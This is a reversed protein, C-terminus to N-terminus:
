ILNTVGVAVKLTSIMKDSQNTVVSQSEWEPSYGWQAVRQALVFCSPLGQGSYKVRQKSVFVWGSFLILYLFLVQWLLPSAESNHALSTPRQLLLRVFPHPCSQKLWTLALSFLHQVLLSSLHPLVPYSEWQTIADYETVYIICFSFLTSGLASHSAGFASPLVCFVEWSFPHSLFM